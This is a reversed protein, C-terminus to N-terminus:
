EAKPKNQGYIAALAIRTVTASPRDKKSNDVILQLIPPM